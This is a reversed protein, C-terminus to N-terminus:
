PKRAERISANIFDAIAQAGPMLPRDPAWWPGIAADLQREIVADSPRGACQFGTYTGRAPVPHPGHQMENACRFLPRGPGPGAPGSPGPNGPGTM